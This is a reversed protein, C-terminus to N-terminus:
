PRLWLQRLEKNIREKQTYSIGSEDLDAKRCVRRRSEKKSSLFDEVSQCQTRFIRSFFRIEKDDSVIVTNVKNVSSEVIKRIREDATEKGSFIVSIDQRVMDLGRALDQGPFGDFVVVVKNRQSGSLGQANIM